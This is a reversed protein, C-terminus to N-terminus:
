SVSSQNRSLDLKKIKFHLTAEPINLSRATKAIVWNNQKLAALILKREYQDVQDGLSGNKGIDDTTFHTDPSELISLGDAEDGERGLSIWKITKNQLERVNGPWSYEDFYKLTDSCDIGENRNHRKLFYDVL